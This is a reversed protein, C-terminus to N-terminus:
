LVQTMNQVMYPQSNRASWICFQHGWRSDRDDRASSETLCFAVFCANPEVKGLITLTSIPGLRLQIGFEAFSKKVQSSGKAVKRCKYTGALRHPATYIRYLQLPLALCPLWSAQPLTNTM